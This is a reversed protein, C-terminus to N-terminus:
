REHEAVVAKSQGAAAASETPMAEDADSGDRDDEIGESISYNSSISNAAFRKCM